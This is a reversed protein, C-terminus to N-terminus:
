EQGLTRRVASTSLLLMTAAALAFAVLYAATAGAEGATFMAIAAAIALALQLVAALNWSWARRRRAAIAAVLAAIAFVFAGGAAWRTSEEAALAADGTLSERYGGAVLSLAIAVVLGLLAELLLVVWLATLTASREARPRTAARAHRTEANM